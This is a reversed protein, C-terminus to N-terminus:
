RTMSMLHQSMLRRLQSEHKLEDCGQIRFHINVPRETLVLQRSFLHRVVGVTGGRQGAGLCKHGGGPLQFAQRGVLGQM